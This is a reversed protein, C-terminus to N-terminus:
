LGLWVDPVLQERGVRLGHAALAEELPGTRRTARRLLWLEGLLPAFCGVVLGILTPLPSAGGVEGLIVGAVGVALFVAIALVSKIAEGMAVTVAGLGSPPRLGDDALRAGRLLVIELRVHFAWVPLVLLHSLAFFVLAAFALAFAVGAALTPLSVPPVIEAIWLGQLVSAFLGLLFTAVAFLSLRRIPALAEDLVAARWALLPAPTLRLEDALPSAALWRLAAALQLPLCVLGVSAVGVM